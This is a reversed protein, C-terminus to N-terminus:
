QRHEGNGRRVLGDVVRILANVNETTQDVRDGVAEVKEGLAEIKRGLADIVQFEDERTKIMVRSLLDLSGDLRKRSEELDRIRTEHNESIADLNASIRAQTALIFEITKEVDM